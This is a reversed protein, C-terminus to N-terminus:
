IYLSLDKKNIHSSIVYKTLTSYCMFWNVWIYEDINMSTNKLHLHGKLCDTDYLKSSYSLCQLLITFIVM